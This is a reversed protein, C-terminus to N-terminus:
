AFLSDFDVRPFVELQGGRTANYISVGHSNCFDRALTFARTVYDVHTDTIPFHREGAPFYNSTFHETDTSVTYRDSRVDLSKGKTDWSLDVGLLYIEKFGMFYALQMSIYVITQGCFVAPVPTPYFDPNGSYATAVRNFFITDKGQKLKPHRIVIKTSGKLKNIENYSYEIVPFDEVNYYTPRWATKGYALYIRNVGFTIENWRHLTNLDDIKLSPGNGIIFCRQGAHRDKLSLLRRENKRSSFNDLLSRAKHLLVYPIKLADKM